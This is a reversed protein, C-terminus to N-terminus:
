SQNIARSTERYNTGDYLMKVVDTKNATTTLTLSGGAFKVAAPWTVLRSGTADQTLVFTYSEGAVPNSFTFTVDGTLTFSQKNGDAFDVTVAGTSNGVANVTTVIPVFLSPYITWSSGDYVVLGGKLGTFGPYNDPFVPNIIPTGAVTVTGILTITKTTSQNTFYFSYNTSPSTPLTINSDNTPVCLFTSYNDDETLVFSAAKVYTAITITGDPVANYDDDLESAPQVGSLSNFVFPYTIQLRSM